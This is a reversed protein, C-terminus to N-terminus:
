TNGLLKLVNRKIEIFEKTLSIEEYNDRSIDVKVEGKIIAPKESIVYIRDSILIAEDIDHTIFLITSNTKKKLGVLWKQLKGRTISDLAGFPEDLLMIDNSTLYTKLLNARQKMGGSLQSPYKEQFGELGFIDIHKEVIERAEKKKHGRLVLPLSVNDIISMYPLLLDKQLMYSIKGARGTVDEGKLFVKGKDPKLLGAIINFLTTKGSGSVGVLSVLEGRMLKINIDKLVLKDDFSKDVNEVRLIELKESM